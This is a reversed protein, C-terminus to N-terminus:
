NSCLYYKLCVCTVYMYLFFLYFYFGGSLFYWLSHGQDWWISVTESYKQMIFDNIASAADDLNESWFTLPNNAHSFKIEVVDNM